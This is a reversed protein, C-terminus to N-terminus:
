RRGGQQNDLHPALSLATQYLITGFTKLFGLDVQLVEHEHAYRWHVFANDVDTLKKRFEAEGGPFDAVLKARIESDNSEYLDSFKHKKPSERGSIVVLLKLFLEAALAYCVIAPSMPSNHFGPRLAIPADCRSGANYFAIAQNMLGKDQEPKGVQSVFVTTM